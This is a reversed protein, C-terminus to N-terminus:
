DVNTPIFFEGAAIRDVIIPIHKIAYDPRDNMVM